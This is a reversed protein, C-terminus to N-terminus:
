LYIIQTLKRVEDYALEFQSDSSFYGYTENGVKRGIRIIDHFGLIMATLDVAVENNQLPHNLAYLIIHSLEHAVAYIFTEMSIVTSEMFIFLPIKLNNFDSTGYIPFYGPSIIFAVSNRFDHGAFAENPIAQISVQQLSSRALRRVSENSPHNKLYCVRLTLGLGCLKKIEGICQSLNSAAYFRRLQSITTEPIGKKVGGLSVSLTRAFDVVEQNTASTIMM